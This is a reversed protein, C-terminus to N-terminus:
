IETELDKHPKAAIKKKEPKQNLIDFLEKSIPTKRMKRRLETLEAVANKQPGKQKNEM